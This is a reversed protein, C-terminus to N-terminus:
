LSKFHISEKVAVVLTAKVVFITADISTISGQQGSLVLYTALIIKVINVTSNLYDLWYHALRLQKQCDQSLYTGCTTIDAPLLVM